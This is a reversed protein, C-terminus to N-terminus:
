DMQEETPPYLIREAVKMLDNEPIFTIGAPLHEDPFERNDSCYFIRVGAGKMVEFDNLDDGVFAANKISINYKECIRELGRKKGVVGVKTYDWDYETASITHLTGDDKYLFRNILIEDFLNDADPLLAYLLTDIGGSIIATKVGHDRLKEIASRANKTLVCNYHEVIEHFHSKKLGYKIFDKCDLRCWELYSLKRNQFKRKRDKQKKNGVKLVKWALTWSHRIGKILTGDLDFAVLRIGSSTPPITPKPQIPAKYNHTTTASSAPIANSFLKLLKGLNSNDLSEDLLHLRNLFSSELEEGFNNKAIHNLFVGLQFSDVNTLERIDGLDQRLKETHDKSRGLFSILKTYCLSEMSPVLIKQLPTKKFSFPKAGEQLADWDLFRYSGRETIKPGIKIIPYKEDHKHRVHFSPRYEDENMDNISWEVTPYLKEVLHQATEYDCILDIDQSKRTVVYQNVALGGILLLPKELMESIQQLQKKAEAIDIYGMIKEKYALQKVKDEQYLVECYENYLVPYSKAFFV